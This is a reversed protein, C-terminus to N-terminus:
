LYLSHYLNYSCQFEILDFINSPQVSNCLLCPPVSYHPVPLVPLNKKQRQIWNIDAHGIDYSYV